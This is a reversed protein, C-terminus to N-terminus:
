SLSDRYKPFYPRFIRYYATSSVYKSSISQSANFEATMMAVCQNYSQGCNPNEKYIDAIQQCHNEITQQLTGFIAVAPFAPCVLEAVEAVAAVKAVEAVEAM